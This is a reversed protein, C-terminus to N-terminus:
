LTPWNPNLISLGTIRTILQVIAYSLVLFFLGIVGSGMKEKARKLRDPNSGSMIWDLAGWAMYFLVALGGVIVIVWWIIAIYRALADGGDGPMRPIAPNVIQALASKALM